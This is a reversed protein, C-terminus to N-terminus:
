HSRSTTKYSLLIFLAEALEKQTIIEAAFNIVHKSDKTVPFSALLISGRLKDRPHLPEWGTKVGKKIFAIKAIGAQTKKEFQWEYDKSDADTVAYGQMIGEEFLIRLGKGKVIEGSTVAVGTPSDLSCSFGPLLAVKGPPCQGFVPSLSFLTILFISVSLLSIRIM